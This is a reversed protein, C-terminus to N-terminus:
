QYVLAPNYSVFAIEEVFGCSTEGLSGTRRVAAKEKKKTRKM